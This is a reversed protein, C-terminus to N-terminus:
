ASVVRKPQDLFKLYCGGHFWAACTKTFEADEGRRQAAYQKAAHYLAACAAREGLKREKVLANVAEGIRRRDANPADSRPHVLRIKEEADKRDFDLTKTKNSKTKNEPLPTGTTETAKQRQNAFTAAIKAPPQQLTYVNHKYKKEGGPQQVWTILN